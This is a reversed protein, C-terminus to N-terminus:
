LGQKRTLAAVIKQLSVLEEDRHQLEQNLKKIELKLSEIEKIHNESSGADIKLKKPAEALMDVPTPRKKSISVDNSSMKRVYVIVPEEMTSFTISVQKQPLGFSDKEEPWDVSDFAKDAEERDKFVLICSYHKRQDTQKPQIELSFEPFIKQLEESSAEKPIRHILLKAQETEPVDKSLLNIGNEYGNKLKALVLKMAARADDVCNHPAGEKRVEYGLVAQVDPLSCTVGKLDKACIGTIETRYDAIPMNPNVLEGLKVELNHDVLSVKVVAETGNECLVMECDVAFMTNSKIVKSIKRLKTVVWDQEPSELDASSQTMQKVAKRNSHCCLVKEFLKLDEEKFFTKIFAVLDDSSRRAPDSISIGLKRDYIKLFAKWSGKEGEMKRKQAMKVIDVLAEKEAAILKEM